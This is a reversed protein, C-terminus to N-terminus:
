GQAVRAGGLVTIMTGCVACSGQWAERGNKLRVPRVEQMERQERCTLCSAHM